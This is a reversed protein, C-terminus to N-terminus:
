SVVVGTVVCMGAVVGALSLTTVFDPTGATAKLVWKM